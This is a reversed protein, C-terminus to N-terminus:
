MFDPPFHRKMANKTKSQKKQLKKEKKEEKEKQKKSKEEEEDRLIGIWPHAKNMYIYIFGLDALTALTIFLPLAWMLTLVFIYADDEEPFTGIARLLLEHRAKM